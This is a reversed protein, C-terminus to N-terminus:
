AVTKNEKQIGEKQNRKSRQKQWLIEAFLIRTQTFRNM